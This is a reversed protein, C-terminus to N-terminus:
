TETPHGKSKKRGQAALKQLAVVERM